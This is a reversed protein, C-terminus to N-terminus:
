RGAGVLEIFLDELPVEIARVGDGDIGIADRIVGAATDSPLEFVAHWDDFNERVRHCGPVRWLSAADPVTARPVMVVSFQDRLQEAPRDLLIKGADMLVVRSGIRELDALHHSSFVIATGERNLLLIAAELFERRVSPDLGGAPEDLILLEPRHCLACLLAVRRAEGKSLKGIPAGLHIDFRQWLQRELPEDWQPFLFRHFDLIEGVSAGSPLVQDEAVYGVRRKVDVPHEIPSLGFVRVSGAQPKLLGIALRLLTTKGAGNRGVLGVVEGPSISLSVGDVVNVGKKYARVVNQFELAPTV